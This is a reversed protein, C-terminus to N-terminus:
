NRTQFIQNRQKMAKVLVLIRNVNKRINSYVKDISIYKEAIVLFYYNLNKKRNKKRNEDIHTLTHHKRTKLHRSYDNKNYTKFDCKECLYKTPNKQSFNTLM